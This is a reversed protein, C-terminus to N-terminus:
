RREGLLELLDGLRLEGLRHLEADDYYEVASDFDANSWEDITVETAIEPNPTKTDAGWGIGGAAVVPTAVMSSLVALAILAALGTRKINM